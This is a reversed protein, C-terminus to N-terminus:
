KTNSEILDFEITEYIKPAMRPLEFALQDEGLYIHGGIGAVM